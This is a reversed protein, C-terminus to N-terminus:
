IPNKDGSILALFPNFALQILIKKIRQWMKSSKELNWVVKPASLANCNSIDDFYEERNKGITFLMEQLKTFYFPFRMKSHPRKRNPIKEKKKPRLPM